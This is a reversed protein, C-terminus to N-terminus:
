SSSSLEHRRDRHAAPAAGHRQALGERAVCRGIAMDDVLEGKACAVGGIDRLCERRFVMLQGMIFPLDGTRRSVTAVSAGYWMNLM